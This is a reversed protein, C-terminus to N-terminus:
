GTRRREKEVSGKSQIKRASHPAVRRGDVGTRGNAHLREFAAPVAKEEENVVRVVLQHIIESMGKGQLLAAIKFKALLEKDIKVTLKGDKTAM